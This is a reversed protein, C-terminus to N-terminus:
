ARQTFQAFSPTEAAVVPKAPAVDPTRAVATNAAPRATAPARTKASCFDVVPKFFMLAVAVAYSPPKHAARAWSRAFRFYPLAMSVVDKAGPQLAMPADEDDHMWTVLEDPHALCLVDALPKFGFYMHSLRTDSDLASAVFAAGERTALFQMLRHRYLPEDRAAIAARLADTWVKTNVDSHSSM